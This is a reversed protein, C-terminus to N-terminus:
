IDRHLIKRLRKGFGPFLLELRYYARGAFSYDEWASKEYLLFHSKKKLEEYRKKCAKSKEALSMWEEMKYSLLKVSDNKLAAYRNAKAFHYRDILAEGLDMGQIYFRQNRMFSEPRQMYYYLCEEVGAILQCSFVLHHIVFEDEHWKGYPYRIQEFLKRKCLKNWPVVYYWGCPGAYGDMFQDPTLCEDRIPFFSNKESIVKYHEDVYLFNCVVMDANTQLLRDLLLKYMDLSICDDSDVFGIYEGTARDLGANRADSVGGNKKHIVVIRSDEKAFDDCMEPCSDTSGDDVLLIELNRYTQELISNVCKTLYKEVNYVPVIVSIKPQEM